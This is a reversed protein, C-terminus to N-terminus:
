FRRKSFAKCHGLFSMALATALKTIEKLSPNARGLEIKKITKLELKAELSLHELTAQRELRMRALNNALTEKSEAIKRKLVM